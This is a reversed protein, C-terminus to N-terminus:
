TQSNCTCTMNLNPLGEDLHRKLFYTPVILAATNYPQWSLLFENLAKKAVNERERSTTACDELTGFITPDEPGYFQYGNVDTILDSVIWTSTNVDWGYWENVDAIHVLEGLVGIVGNLDSYTAVEPKYKIEFHINNYYCGCGKFIPYKAYQFNPNEVSFTGGNFWDISNAIPVPLLPEALTTGNELTIRHKGHNKLYADRQERYVSEYDPLTCTLTTTSELFYCKFWDIYATTLPPATPLEFYLTNNTGAYKAFSAISSECRELLECEEEAVLTLTITECGESILYVKVDANMFSSNDRIVDKRQLLNNPALTLTSEILNANINEWEGTALHKYTWVATYAANDYTLVYGEECSYTLTHLVACDGLCSTDNCLNAIVTNLKDGEMIAACPFSLGDYFVCSTNIKEICYVQNQSGCPLSVDNLSELCTVCSFNYM